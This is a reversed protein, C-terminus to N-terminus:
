MKVFTIREPKKLNKAAELDTSFASVTLDMKMPASSMQERDGIMLVNSKDTIDNKELAYTIVQAKTGRGGDMEM